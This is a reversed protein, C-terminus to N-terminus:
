GAVGRPLDIGTGTHRAAARAALTLAHRMRTAAASAAVSPVRFPVTPAAAASSCAQATLLDSSAGGPGAAAASPGAPSRVPAASAGRRDTRRLRCPAPATAADALSLRAAAPIAQARLRRTRSRADRGGAPALRDRRLGAGPLGASPASAPPWAPTRSRSGGSPGGCAAGGPVRLSHTPGQPAAPSLRRQGGGSCGATKMTPPTDLGRFALRILPTRPPEPAAPTHCGIVASRPMRARARPTLPFRGQRQAALFSRLRACSRVARLRAHASALGRHAFSPVAAAGASARRYAASIAALPWLRRPSPTDAPVSTAGLSASPGGSHPTTGVGHLRRGGGGRAAIAARHLAFPAASCPPM